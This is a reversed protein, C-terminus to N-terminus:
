LDQYFHGMNHWYLPGGGEVDPNSPVLHTTVSPDVLSSNSIADGGVVYNHIRKKNERFEKSNFIKRDIGRRTHVYTSGQNFLHAELKNQLALEHAIKGGLSHGTLTVNDNGYKKMTRKLNKKSRRYRPTITELGLSLLADTGLDGWKGGQENKFDTGRVAFIVKGESNKFVTNEKGSLEHDIEWDVYGHKALHMERDVRNRKYASEAAAAYLKM